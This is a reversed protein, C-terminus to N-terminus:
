KGNVIAVIKELEYSRIVKQKDTPVYNDDFVVDAESPDAVVEGRARAVLGVNLELFNSDMYKKVIEYDPLRVVRDSSDLAINLIIMENTTLDIGFTAAVRSNVGPVKFQM